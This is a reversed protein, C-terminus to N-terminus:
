NKKDYQHRELGIKVKTKFWQGTSSSQITKKYNEIIDPHFRATTKAAWGIGKKIHHEKTNALSLLIPFCSATATKNLGKKIAYHIAPGVSRVIWKNENQSLKQLSLLTQEPEMLLSHGMVREGIIDCVYWENGLVIYDVAKYISEQFHQELRLQLLKGLIVNGGMTHLNAIGNCLEIQHEEKIQNYLLSAAYELLPFKIKATLLEQHLQELTPTIDKPTYEVLCKQVKAKVIPKRTISEM